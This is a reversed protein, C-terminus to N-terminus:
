LDNNPKNRIPKYKGINIGIDRVFEKQTDINEEVYFKMM